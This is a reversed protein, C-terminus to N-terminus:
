FFLLCFLHAGSHPQFSVSLPDFFLFLVMVVSSDSAWDMHSIATTSNVKSKYKYGASVDIFVIVFGHTGVALLTGDPSYKMSEIWNQTQNKLQRNGSPRAFLFIPSSFSLCPSFLGYNNLDLSHIMKM